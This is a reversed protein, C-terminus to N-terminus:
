TIEILFKFGETLFLLTKKFDEFSLVKTASMVGAGSSKYDQTGSRQIQFGAANKYNYEYNLNM